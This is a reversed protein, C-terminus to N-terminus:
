KIKNSSSSRAPSKLDDITSSSCLTKSCTELNDLFTHEPQPTLVSQKRTM